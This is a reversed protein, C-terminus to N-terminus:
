KRRGLLQFLIFCERKGNGNDYFVVWPLHERDLDSLEQKFNGDWLDVVEAHMYKKAFKVFQRKSENEFQDQCPLTLLM